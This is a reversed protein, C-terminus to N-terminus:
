LCRNLFLKCGIERNIESHIIQLNWFIVHFLALFLWIWSVAQYLLEVVEGGQQCRFAKLVGGCMFSTITDIGSPSGEPSCLRAPPVSSHWLQAEQDSRSGHNVCSSCETIQFELYFPHKQLWCLELDLDEPMNHLLLHDVIVSIAHWGLPSRKGLSSSSIIRWLTQLKLHWM